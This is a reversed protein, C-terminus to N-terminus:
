LAKGHQAVAQSVRLTSIELQGQRPGSDAGRRSHSQPMSHFLHWDDQRPKIKVRALIVCVENKWQLGSPVSATLLQKNKIQISPILACKPNSEFYSLFLAISAGKIHMEPNQSTHWHKM